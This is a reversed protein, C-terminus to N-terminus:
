RRIALPLYGFGGGPEEQLRSVTRVLAKSDRQAHQNKGGGALIAPGKNIWRANGIDRHASVGLAIALSRDPVNMTNQLKTVPINRVDPDLYIIHIETAGAEIGTSLPTNM